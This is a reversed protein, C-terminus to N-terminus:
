WVRLTVCGGQVSNLSFVLGGQGFKCFILAFYALMKFTILDVSVSVITVRVVISLDFISYISGGLGGWTPAHLRVLFFNFFVM